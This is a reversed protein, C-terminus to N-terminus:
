SDQVSIFDFSLGGLTHSSKSSLSAQAVCLTTLHVVADMWVEPGVHGCLYEQAFQLWIERNTLSQPVDEM